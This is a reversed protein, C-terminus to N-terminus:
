REATIRGVSIIEAIAAGIAASDPMKGVHWRLLPIGASWLAHTKRADAKQRDARGHTADDLEVVTVISTDPNLVLFDVSLQCIQNFVSINRAGRKFRLAQMLQVQALVIHGPLAHVLRRYLV